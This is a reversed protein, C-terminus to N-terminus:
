QGGLAYVGSQTNDIPNILCTALGTIGASNRSQRFALPEAGAYFAGDHAQSGRLRVRVPSAM